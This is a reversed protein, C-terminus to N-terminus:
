SFRVHESCLSHIMDVPSAMCTLLGRMDNEPIPGTSPYWASMEDERPSNCPWVARAIMVFNSSVLLFSAMMSRGVHVQVQFVVIGGRTEISIYSPNRLIYGLLFHASKMSVGLVLFTM